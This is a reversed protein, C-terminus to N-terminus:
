RPSSPPLKFRCADAFRNLGGHFRDLARRLQGTHYPGWARLSDPREGPGTPALGVVCHQDLADALNRLAAQLSDAAVGAMAPVERRAYRPVADLVATRASGCARALSRAKAIVTEAGASSLDRRFAVVGASVARVTDRLAVLRDRQVTQVSDLPVDSRQALVSPPAALGVALGVAGVWPKV